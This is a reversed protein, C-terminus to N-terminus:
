HAGERGLVGKRFCKLDASVFFGEYDNTPGGGVVPVVRFKAGIPSNRVGMSSESSPM